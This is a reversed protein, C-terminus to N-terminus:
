TAAPARIEELDMVPLEKRKDELWAKEVTARAEKFTIYIGLRRAKDKLYKVAEAM